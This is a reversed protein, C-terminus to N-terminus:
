PVAKLASFTVEEFEGGFGEAMNDRGTFGLDADLTDRVEFLVPFCPKTGGVCAKGHKQESVYVQSGDDSTVRLVITGGDAGAFSTIEARQWEGPRIGRGSLKAKGEQGAFHEWGGWRLVWEKGDTLLYSLMKRNSGDAVFWGIACKARGGEVNRCGDVPPRFRVSYRIARYEGRPLNWTFRRVPDAETSVFAGDFRHSLIGAPPPDPPKPPDVPGEKPRCGMERAGQPDHIIISLPVTEPCRVELQASVEAAAALELAQGDLLVVFAALIAGAGIMLIGEARKSM